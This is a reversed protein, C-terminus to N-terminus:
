FMFHVYKRSNNHSCVENDLTPKAFFFKDAKVGEACYAIADLVKKDKEKDNFEIEMIKQLRRQQTDTLEPLMEVEDTGADALAECKKLCRKM